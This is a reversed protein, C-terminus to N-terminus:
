NEQEFHIRIFEKKKVKDEKKVVLYAFFALGATLLTLIIGLVLAPRNILLENLGKLVYYIANKELALRAPANYGAALLLPIEATALGIWMVALTSFAIDEGHRKGFFAFNLATVLIFALYLPIEALTFSRIKVIVSSVTNLRDSVFAPIFHLLSMVKGNVYETLSEREELSVEGYNEAEAIVAKSIKENNFEPATFEAGSVLSSLFAVTYDHEYAIITDKGASSLIKEGTISTVSYVSDLGESIDSILAEDFESTIISDRYISENFIIRNFLTCIVALIFCLGATFDLVGCMFRRMNKQKM